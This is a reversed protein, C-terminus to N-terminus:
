AASELNSDNSDMSTDINETKRFSDRSPLSDLIEQESYKKMKEHNKVVEVPYDAPTVNDNKVDKNFQRVEKVEKIVKKFKKFPNEM